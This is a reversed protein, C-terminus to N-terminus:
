TLLEMDREQFIHSRMTSVLWVSWRNGKYFYFKKPKDVIIGVADAPIVRVTDGIKM